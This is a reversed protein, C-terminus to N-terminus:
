LKSEKSAVYLHKMSTQEPQNYIEPVKIWRTTRVNEACMKLVCEHM